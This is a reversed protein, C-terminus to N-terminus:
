EPHPWWDSTTYGNYQGRMPRFRNRLHVIFSAGDSM